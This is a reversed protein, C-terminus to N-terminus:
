ECIKKQSPNNEKLPDDGCKMKKIEKLLDWVWFTTWPISAAV